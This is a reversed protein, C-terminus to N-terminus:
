LFEVDWRALNQNLGLNIFDIEGAGPLRAHRAVDRAVDDLLARRRIM